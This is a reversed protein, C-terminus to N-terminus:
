ALVINRERGDSFRVQVTLCGEKFRRGSTAVALENAAHNGYGVGRRKVIQDGDLM